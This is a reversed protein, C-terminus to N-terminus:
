QVVGDRRLCQDHQFGFAVDLRHPHV